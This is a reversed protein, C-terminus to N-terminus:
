SSSSRKMVASTLPIGASPSVRGLPNHIWETPMRVHDIGAGASDTAHISSRHRRRMVSARRSSRRARHYRSIAGIGQHEHAAVVRRSVVASARLSDEDLVLAVRNQSILQQKKRNCADKQRLCWCRSTSLRQARASRSRWVARLFAALLLLLTVGNLLLLVATIPTSLNPNYWYLLSLYQTGLVCLLMTVTLWNLLAAAYPWMYVHLLLSATVIAASLYVSVFDDESAFTAVTLMLVKRLMVLAEWYWLGREVHYGAFLFGLAKHVAPDGRRIAFRLRYLVLFVGLPLAVVFLIGVLAAVGFRAADHCPEDLQARLVYAAAGGEVSPLPVPYCRFAAFVERTIRSHLLVLMILTASVFMRANFLRPRQKQPGKAQTAGDGGPATSAAQRSCLARCLLGGHRLLRHLVIGCALVAPVLLPLSMYLAFRSVYSSALGCQAFSIDLSVGNSLSAFGLVERFLAPGRAAFEGTIWTLQLYDLLLRVLLSTLSKARRSRVILVVALAALILASLLLM